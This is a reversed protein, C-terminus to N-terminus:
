NSETNQIAQTFEKLDLEDADIVEYNVNISSKVLWGDVGDEEYIKNGDIDEGYDYRKIIFNWNLNHLSYRLTLYSNEMMFDPSLIFKIDCYNEDKGFDINWIQVCYLNPRFYANHELAEQVTIADKTDGSLAHIAKISLRYLISEFNRKDM